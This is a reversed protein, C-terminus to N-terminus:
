IQIEYIQSEKMRKNKLVEESAKAAPTSSKM